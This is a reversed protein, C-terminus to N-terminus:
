INEDNPNLEKIFALYMNAARLFNKKSDEENAKLWLYNNRTEKLASLRKEYVKPDLSSKHINEFEILYKSINSM